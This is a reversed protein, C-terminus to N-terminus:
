GLTRPIETCAGTIDNNKILDAISKSITAESISEVVIMDKAWVYTGEACEGTIRYSELLSALNTITFFTAVFVRGDALNIKVDINGQDVLPYNAKGYFEINFDIM